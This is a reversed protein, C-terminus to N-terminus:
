PKAQATTGDFDTPSDEDQPDPALLTAILWWAVGTTILVDAINFTPWWGTHLMDVVGAGEIRDVVNAAGGAVFLIAPGTPAQKTRWLHVVGSLAAATLAVLISSPLNSVLGFAIGTNYSLQLDVPGPLSRSGGVLHNVAWWKATLDLTVLLVVAVLFPGAPRHRTM